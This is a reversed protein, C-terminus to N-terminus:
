LKRLKVEQVSHDVTKYLILQARQRYPVINELLNLENIEHWVKEAFKIVEEQTLKTLFNFYSDSKQFPGRWFSLVRQIYWQKIVTPDADVFLTFDFYDSVFIKKSRTHTQLINLGEVILIDPKQIVQYQNPLIDYSHHSYLPVKIETAGSKLAHLVHLLKGTDYSEPFGKRSFIGRETLKQNPYLFGDTGLIEVKPHNPWHSLLARLVRSTTSKGVAVSGSVGIIYPVKPEDVGLFNATAQYLGETATVYFSLLRSLPLYIEEIEKATVEDIQGPLTEIEEATLPSPMNLRYQCWENRTFSLYPSPLSSKDQTNKALSMNLVACLMISKLISYSLM